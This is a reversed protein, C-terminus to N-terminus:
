NGKKVRLDDGKITSVARKSDTKVLDSKISFSGSNSIKGLYPNGKKEGGQGKAM